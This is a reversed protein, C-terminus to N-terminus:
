GGASQPSEVPPLTKLYLWIAKLQDDTLFKFDEWPMLEPDLEKGEPTVGTRMTEIFDEETWNVLDGAPTLNVGEGELMGGAMNETHCVACILSMYEGYEPTVGRAVGEPPPATHDIGEAPIAEEAPVAGLTLMVRGMLKIETRPAENDVPPMNKVYAIIEGLDTGNLKTFIQAPMIVMPLGDPRVGHRLSRVWDADTYWSGVGGKGTTLNASSLRIISSDEMIQGSLDDGHCGKCFDVLVLPWEGEPTTVQAPIPVIEQPVNYTQNLRAEVRYYIVGLAVAAVGLLSGIVIGAWKLFKDM